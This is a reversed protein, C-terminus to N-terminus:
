IENKVVIKNVRRQSFLIYVYDSEYCTTLKGSISNNIRIVTCWKVNKKFSLLIFYYFFNSVM